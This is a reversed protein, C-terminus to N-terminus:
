RVVKELERTVASQTDEETALGAARQQHAKTIAKRARELEQFRLSSERGEAKLSQREQEFEVMLRWQPQTWNYLGRGQYWLAWLPLGLTGSLLSLGSDVARLAEQTQKSEGRHIGSAVKEDGAGAARATSQVLNLADTTLEGIPGVFQEPSRHQPDAFFDVLAALPKGLYFLGITTDSIDKTVAATDQTKDFAARRLSNILVIGLTNGVVGFLVAKGARSLNEPTPNQTAEVVRRSIVNYIRNQERMFMLTGRLLPQRKAEVELEGGYLPNSTPQDRGAVVNFLETTRERAPLGSLGEQKATLEAARYAVRMVARDVGRQMVLGYHQIPDLVSPQRGEQGLVTLDQLFHGHYRMYALGSDAIMRADVSRDFAAGSAIAKSLAKPSVTGDAYMTMIHLSQKAASFVNWAIRSVTYGSIAKNILKSTVSPSLGVSGQLDSLYMQLRKFDGRGQRTLLAEEVKPSYLAKNAEYLAPGLEAYTSMQKTVRQFEGLVDRAEYPTNVNEQRDRLPDIDRSFSSTFGNWDDNPKTEQPKRQSPWYNETYQPEYGHFLNYISFGKESVTNHDLYNRLHLAFAVDKPSIGKLMEEIKYIRGNKKVGVEFIDQRGKDQSTLLANLAEGRTIDGNIRETLYRGLKYKGIASDYDFGLAKAGLAIHRTADAENQLHRTMPEVMQKYFVRYTPSDPNFATIQSLWNETTLPKLVNGIFHLITDNKKAFTSLEKQAAIEKSVSEANQAESFKLYRRYLGAEIQGQRVLEMMRNHLDTHADPSLADLRKQLLKENITKNNTATDSEVIRPSPKQSPEVTSTQKRLQAAQERTLYRGRNTMFGYAPSEDDAQLKSLEKSQESTLKETRRIREFIDVHMEETTKATAPNAVYTKGGFQVARRGVVEKPRAVPEPTLSNLLKYVAERQRNKELKKVTSLIKRGETEKQEVVRAAEAEALIKKVEAPSRAESLERLFPEAAEPSLKRFIEVATDKEKGLAAEVLSKRLRREAAAYDSKEDGTTGKALRNQYEEYAYKNVLDTWPETSTGRLKGVLEQVEPPAGKLEEGLREVVGRATENDTHKAINELAADIARIAAVKQPDSMKSQAVARMAKSRTASVTSDKKLIREMRESMMADLAEFTVVKQGVTMDSKERLTVISEMMRRQLRAVLEQGRASKALETPPRFYGAADSKTLPYSVKQIPTMDIPSLIEKSTLSARSVREPIPELVGAVKPALNLMAEAQQLNQRTPAEALKELQRNIDAVLLGRPRVPGGIDTVDNEDFKATLDAKAKNLREVMSQVEHPLPALRTQDVFPMPEGKTAQERAYAIAVPNHKLQKQMEWTIVDPTISLEGKPGVEVKMNNRRASAVKFVTLPNDGIIKQEEPTILKEQVFRKVAIDAAKKQAGTRISGIGKLGYHAGLMGIVSEAIPIEQPKAGGARSFAEESVPFLAGSGGVALAEVAQEALFKQAKSEGVKSILFHVYPNKKAIDSIPIIGLGAAVIGAGAAPLVKGDTRDFVTGFADAGFSIPAVPGQALIPLFGGIFNAGTGLADERTPALSEMGIPVSRYESLAKKSNGGQALNDLLELSNVTHLVSRMVATATESLLGREEPEKPLLEPYHAAIVEPRYPWASTALPPKQGSPPRLGSAEALDTAYLPVTPPLGDPRRRAVPPPRQTSLIQKKVDNELPSSTIEVPRGFFDKPQPEDVPSVSVTPPTTDVTPSLLDVTPPLRFM